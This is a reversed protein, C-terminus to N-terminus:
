RPLFESMSMENTFFPTSVNTFQSSSSEQLIGPRDLRGFTPEGPSPLQILYSSIYFCSSIYSVIEAMTPRANPNPQVSLLGIQICRNVEIESFNEKISPDLIGLTAHDKWQRWVYSFLNYAIRNSEYSSANKKGTIIELVMVGFSFVDSKEFFRGLILYEPSMYGYTGAVNLTSGQDQNIEVIRALGFDSIKPIMNEDLLINSPKLDRHIIKLRSHEHLYLIGRAIGVIINYREYWDLSKSRQTDFLFYDLSKNPVYEYILIKDQEELCFGIFRVLNRHQLKAISLVENKFENEGQSSSISLRKVAIQRGDLVGKYVEGFGGRGIKNEQSFNNTAAEIVSLKFQLPELAVSEHGFQERLIRKVNKRRKRKMLYYNILYYVLSLLTLSIITPVIVFIMTRSQGKKREQFPSSAPDGGARYFQFLEFRINCSPYLIRGAVSGLNSWPIRGNIDSLCGVCDDSSLDQTCQGLTYLTQADNLAISKNVYKEASDGAAKALSALTTSLSYTFDDQGPIPSSTATVNLMQFMPSKEMHSFFYNKSYRLMCHSFWIIAEQSSNCRSSLYSTANLVCQQCLQSPLDGRCMFLGYANDDVSDKYYSKTANSSLYSLLTDLDKNFDSDATADASCNHNLYNPDADSFKSAPVPVPRPPHSPPASPDIHRYFPYLEYRVFCSPYLVRGGQRGGCCWPLDGIAGELCSSCDKSLLDPTCQAMCYLRQFGSVSAQRTAFKKASIPHLPYTVEDATKNMTRFLLRRFSEENSINLISTVTFKPRTDLTSFFSYNSYRLMCDDYWILAQQSYSCDLALQQAAKNVCQRCLQSPVDARCVFLGFVSDSPNEGTVNTKNFGNDTTANSLRRLLTDLNFKFVSGADTDTSCNLYAYDVYRTDAHTTAFTLFSLFLFEFM